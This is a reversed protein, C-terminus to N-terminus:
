VRVKRVGYRPLLISLMYYKSKMKWPQEEMTHCLVSTISQFTTGNNYWDMRNASCVDLFLEFIKTNQEKVGSIPSEWNSNVISFIRRSIGVPVSIKLELCVKRMWSVMVKFAISTLRSYKMCAEELINLM